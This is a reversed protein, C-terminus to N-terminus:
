RSMLVADSVYGFREGPPHGSAFGPTIWNRAPNYLAAVDGAAFKDSVLDGRVFFANVGTINTGVLRYGNRAALNAIAQLSAGGYDSGDWVRETDYPPVVDMPPPFKGNYEIVLVRPRVSRIAKLVHYDNGDIDISLLDLEGKSAVRADSILRDINEATVFSELLELRGEALPAAHIRRAFACDTPASEIWLGSWGEVLLKLTNCERGESVGFEVFSRSTAGIRRFIEQLIGDEDNQSWVKRGHRELRGPEGYRPEALLERVERATRMEIDIVALQHLSILRREMEAIRRMAEKADLEAPAPAQLPEPPASLGRFFKGLISM